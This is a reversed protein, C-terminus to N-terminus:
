GEPRMRRLRGYKVVRQRMVLAGAPVHGADLHRESTPGTQLFKAVDTNNFPQGKHNTAAPANQARSAM